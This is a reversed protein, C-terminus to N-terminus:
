SQILLQVVAPHARNPTTNALQLNCEVSRASASEFQLLGNTLMFSLTGTSLRGRNDSVPLSRGRLTEIVQFLRPLRGKGM